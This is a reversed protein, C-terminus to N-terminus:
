LSFLARAARDLDGSADERLSALPAHLLGAVLRHSMQEVLEREHDPLDMRRFLRDLEEARRTEAQESLAQIAPVSTRASVWGAFAALAEGIVREFRVRLRKRLEDQPSRALDDVSTYRRGFADRLDPDFAPPSSLDVVPMPGALLAERADASLPWRASIASIVADVDPLPADPGFAAPEGGADWALAAARDASRNAVLVHAGQRQAALAVLRAMRGAGVVLVRQGILPGTTATVRDLAVDALSRPPGERWSRTERGLHLAAQFLRELAPDLGIAGSDHSGIPVPCRDATPVRRDGLCERLQHLIQDEGVVVSDLGTAVQFLHRAADMGELRRGGAPLEPLVLPRVEDAETDGAEAEAAYLEVRHCTRVLIARPHHAVRLAARAFAERDDSPVTRAHVVLAVLGLAARPVTV